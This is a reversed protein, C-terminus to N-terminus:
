IQANLYEGILELVKKCDVRVDLDEKRGKVSIYTRHVDGRVATIDCIRITTTLGGDEIQLLKTIKKTEM